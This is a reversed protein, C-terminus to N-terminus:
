EGLLERRVGCQAGFVAGIYVSALFRKELPKVCPDALWLRVDECRHLPLVRIRIQELVMRRDLSVGRAGCALRCWQILPQIHHM